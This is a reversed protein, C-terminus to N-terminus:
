RGPADSELLVGELTYSVRCPLQEWLGGESALIFDCDTDPASRVEVDNDAVLDAAETGEGSDHEPRHVSGTISEHVLLTCTAREATGEFREPDAAFEPDAEREPDPEVVASRDETLTRSSEAEFHFAGEGDLQGTRAPPRVIWFGQGENERLEVDFVMPDDAPLAAMGCTHEVLTGTVAYAGVLDGPLEASCAALVLAALPASRFCVM